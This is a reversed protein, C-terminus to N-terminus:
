LTKTSNDPVRSSFRIVVMDVDIAVRSHVYDRIRGLTDSTVRRATLVYPMFSRPCDLVM